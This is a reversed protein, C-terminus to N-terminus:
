KPTDGKATFRISGMHQAPMDAALGFLSLTVTASVAVVTRMNTSEGLVMGYKVRETLKPNQWNHRRGAGTNGPVTLIATTLHDLGKGNRRVQWLAAM